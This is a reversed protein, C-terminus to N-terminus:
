VHKMSDKITNLDDCDKISISEDVKFPGQKSRILSVMHAASDLKKGIDHILSRIYTGGGCEVKFRFTPGEPLKNNAIAKNKFQFKKKENNNNNQNRNDQQKKMNKDKTEEKNDIDMQFTFDENDNDVQIETTKTPETYFELLEISHIIIKRSKIEKPLEQGNKAYEYMPKGNVKLASYIPPYQEIEGVFEQLVEELKEKTIHQYPKEEVLEGLCDYTETSSGFRGVAEYVKSGSLLTNLMKTGKFLGIVLCGSALPDLTGGHGIKIMNRKKKKKDVLNSSILQRTVKHKIITVVDSSSLGIPKNVCFVGNLQELIKGSYKKVLKNTEDLKQKLENNEM